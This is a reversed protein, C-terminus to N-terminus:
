STIISREANDGDLGAVYLEADFSYGHDNLLEEVYRVTVQPLPTRSVVTSSDDEAFDLEYSRVSIDGRDDQGIVEVLLGSGFHHLNVTTLTDMYGTYQTDSLPYCGLLIARLRRKASAYDVSYFSELM